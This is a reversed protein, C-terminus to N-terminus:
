KVQCKGERRITLNNGELARIMIDLYVMTATIIPNSCFTTKILPNMPSNGDIVRGSRGLDTQPPAKIGLLSFNVIIM